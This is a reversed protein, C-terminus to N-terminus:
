PKRYPARSLTADMRRTERATLTVEPLTEKEFGPQAFTLAYRGVDINKFAYNGTADTVMARAAATGSNSLTVQAGPILAGSSDRVTGLITGFTSQAPLVGVSLAILCCVPFVRRTIRRFFSPPSHFGRMNKGKLFSQRLFRQKKQLSSKICIYRRHVRSYPMKKLLFKTGSSSSPTEISSNFCPHEV